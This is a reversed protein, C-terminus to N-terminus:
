KSAADGAADPVPAEPQKKANAPKMKEMLLRMQAQETRQSSRCYLRSVSLVSFLTMLLPPSCMAVSPICQEVATGDTSRVLQREVGRPLIVHVLQHVQIPLRYCRSCGVLACALM